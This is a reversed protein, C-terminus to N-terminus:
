QMLLLKASAKKNYKTERTEAGDRRWSKLQEM